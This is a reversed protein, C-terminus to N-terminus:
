NVYTKEKLKKVNELYQSLLIEQEAPRPYGLKILERQFIIFRRWREIISLQPNKESVWTLNSYDNNVTIGLEDAMDYLPTNKLLILPASENIDILTGNILYKQYRRIMDLTENFDDITETPYGVLMMLTNGISYKNCMEMHYDVDKSTFKKQMHFRVQDSGTEVGIQINRAGTMSMLQYMYESHASQPRIIFQGSYQFNHLSKHNKKLEIIGEMFSIFNKLSGNILSDTFFFNTEGTDLHHQEIEKIINAASRFRFKKWISGVDCFTCRRVCGRSGTVAIEVTGDITQYRKVPIKKYSPLPLHDLDDIQPAWTEFKDAASNLGLEIQGQMFQDLVLDGEGLIYYDLLDQDCLFRAFTKQEDVKVGIGSGGILTMSGLKYQKIKELLKKCWYNQWYTLVTVIILDPALKNLQIVFKELVIDVLNDLESNTETIDHLATYHYLKTWNEHGLTDLIFLNLDYTEYNLNNKECIGALFALGPPPRNPEIQGSAIAVVNRIKQM